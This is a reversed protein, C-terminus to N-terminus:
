QRLLARLDRSGDLNQPAVHQREIVLFQRCETALGHRHDELLRRQREIRDVGDALLDRFGHHTV